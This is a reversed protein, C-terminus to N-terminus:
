IRELAIPAVVVGPIRELERPSLRIKTSRNGGGVIVYEADMIRADVYLPISDPLAFVTVGGILQGTVAKTEDASAFSLRKIGMLRSVAHNVDLKTTALVLCASYQKPESKSAVLITNAANQRPINYNACFVDTDAWEPNCDLIQYTLGLADIHRQVAPDLESVFPITGIFASHLICFASNLIFFSRSQNKM